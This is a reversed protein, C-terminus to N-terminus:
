KPKSLIKGILGGIVGYLAANSLAIIAWLVNWQTSTAPIDIFMLTLASPPCLYNSLTLVVSNRNPYSVVLYTLLAGAITFGAFSSAVILKWNKRIPM